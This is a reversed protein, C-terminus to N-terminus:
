NRDARPAREIIMDNSAVYLPPESRMAVQPSPEAQVLVPYPQMPTVVAVPEPTVFVVPAAATERPRDSACGIATIASLAVATTVFIRSVNM